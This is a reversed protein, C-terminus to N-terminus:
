NRLQQLAEHCSLFGEVEGFGLETEHIDDPILACGSHPVHCRSEVALGNKGVVGDKGRQANELLLAVDPVGPRPFAAGKDIVSDNAALLGAAIGQALYNPPKEAIRRLQKDEMQEVVAIERLPFDLLNAIEERLTFFSRSGRM